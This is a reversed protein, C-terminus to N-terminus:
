HDPENAFKRIIMEKYVDEDTPVPGQVWPHAIIEDMTLRATPDLQLMDGLLEKLDDSMSAFKEFVKFYNNIKNGAIFKYYKDNTKAESFPQCQTIMMFLIVAAAFM